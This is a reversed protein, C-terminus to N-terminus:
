KRRHIATFASAPFFEGNIGYGPPLLFLRSGALERNNPLDRASEQNAWRALVQSLGIAQKLLVQAFVSSVNLTTQVYSVAEVLNMWRRNSGSVDDDQM